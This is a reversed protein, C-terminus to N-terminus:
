KVNKAKPMAVGTCRTAKKKSMRWCFIAGKTLKIARATRKMTIMNPRFPLPQCVMAQIVLCINVMLLNKAVKDVFFKSEGLIIVSKVIPSIPTKKELALQWQGAISPLTYTTVQAEQQKPQATNGIASGLALMSLLGAFSMNMFDM